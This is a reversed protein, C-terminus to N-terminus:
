FLSSKKPKNNKDTIFSFDDEDSDDNKLANFTVQIKSKVFKTGELLQNMGSLSSYNLKQIEETEIHERMSDYIQGPISKITLMMLNINSILNSKIEERTMKDAKMIKITSDVLQNVELDDYLDMLDLRITNKKKLYDQIILEAKKPSIGMIRTSGSASTSEYWYIPMINDGKDGIICKIFSFELPNFNEVNITNTNILNQITKKVISITSSYHNLASFFDNKDIKSEELQNVWDNFGEKVYMKKDIPNFVVVTDSVLQKMDGDGSMIISRKSKSTFEASWMYLLDDAEAGDVKSIIIGNKQIQDLFADVALKFNDWNFGDYTRNGKYEKEPYFDKRWSQSDVCWIISDVLPTFNRIQYTLDTALKRVYSDVHLPDDLVRDGPKPRPLVHITRFLFNHGDILLAFKENKTTKM